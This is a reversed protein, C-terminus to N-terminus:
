ARAELPALPHRAALYDAIEQRFLAAVAATVPGPGPIEREDIRVVPQVERTTSCIFIEEASYLDAPLLVREVVTRGARDCATLLHKRSVGPLAGSSALPPTELRGSRVLFINAATCESVEGYENLLLVDDFGAQNAAELLVLNHSWTLTKTGALPSQAQRGHPQLRLRASAGWNRLDATFILLDTPRRGPTDLLGGHNRICYVRAMAEPAHNREVLAQLAPSVEDLLHDLEIHLKRADADLRALHDEIAFPVGCYIRLTSFLGWGTLLGTQFPSLRIEDAPLIEGNFFAYRHVM